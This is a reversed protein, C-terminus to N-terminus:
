SKRTRRRSRFFILGGLAVMVRGTGMVAPVLGSGTVPLIGSHDDSPGSPGPPGPTSTTGAGAEGCTGNANGQHNIGHGGVAYLHSNGPLPLAHHGHQGTRHGTCGAVVRRQLLPPPHDESHNPLQKRRARRLFRDLNYNALDAFTAASV